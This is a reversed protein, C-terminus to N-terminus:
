ARVAARRVALPSAGAPTARRRANTTGTVHQM